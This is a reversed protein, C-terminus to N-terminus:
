GALVQGLRGFFVSRALVQDCGAARAADLVDVDVHSGFAIVRAGLGIAATVGDLAGPRSLDLLVMAIRASEDAADLRAALGTASSVFEVTGFGDIGAAAASVKSRDMLDPILALVRGASGSM